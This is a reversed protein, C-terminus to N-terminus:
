QRRRAKEEEKGEKGPEDRAPQLTPEPREKPMALKLCPTYSTCFSLSSRESMSSPLTLASLLCVTASASGPQRQTHQQQV